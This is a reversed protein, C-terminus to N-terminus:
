VAFPWAGEPGSWDYSHVHGDPEIWKPPVTHDPLLGAPVAGAGGAAAISFAARMGAGM